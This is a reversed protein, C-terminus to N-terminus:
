QFYTYFQRCLLGYKIACLVSSLDRYHGFHSIFGFFIHIKEYIFIFIHYIFINSIHIRMASEIQQVTSVLVSQLAAMYWYFNIKFILQFM